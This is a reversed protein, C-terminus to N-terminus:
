TVERSLLRSLIRMERLAFGLKWTGNLREAEGGGGEGVRSWGCQGEQGQTEQPWATDTGQAQFVRRHDCCLEAGQRTRARVTKPSNDLSRKYKFQATGGGEHGEGEKVGGWM